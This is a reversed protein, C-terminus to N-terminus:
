LGIIRVNADHCKILAYRQEIEPHSECKLIKVRYYEFTRWGLQDFDFFDKLRIDNLTGSTIWEVPYDWYGSPIIDRNVMMPLTGPHDVYIQYEPVYEGIYSYVNNIHLESDIKSLVIEEFLLECIQTFSDFTDWTSNERLFTNWLHRVAERFKHIHNTIVM